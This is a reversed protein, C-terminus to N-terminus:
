LDRSSSSDPTREKRSWGTKLDGGLKFRPFPHGETNYVNEELSIFDRDSFLLYFYKLTEAMWFGEMNDRKAPPVAEVNSLSTFGVIRYPPHSESDRKSHTTMFDNHSREVISTHKIFSKFMEWGWHRYTEDETIRYLYFLSEATEPRQLNHRDMKRITIDDMWNLTDDDLPYLPKSVPPIEEQKSKQNGQTMTSDPYMDTMMRPPNDVSFYTIEPALGTNTALYTAWCTKMLEKALLIEEDQRQTWDPSKKAESIPQGGTAGLAITGPLFCALHDMKPALLGMVGDPREGLVTLRARKSYTILHRRIGM